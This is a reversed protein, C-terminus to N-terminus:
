WILPDPLKNIPLPHEDAFAAFAGAFLPSAALFQLFRRRSAAQDISMFGGERPPESTRTTCDATPQRPQRCPLAPNRVTVLAKRFQQWRPAMAPSTGAM